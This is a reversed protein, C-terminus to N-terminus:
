RITCKKSIVSCVEIGSPNNHYRFAAEINAKNDTKKVFSSIAEKVVTYHQPKYTLQFDQIFYM